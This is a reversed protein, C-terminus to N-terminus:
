GKLFSYLCIFLEHLQEKPKYLNKRQLSAEQNFCSFGYKKNHILQFDNFFLLILILFIRKIIFLDRWDNWTINIIQIIDYVMSGISIGIWVGRVDFQKWHVLYYAILNGVFIYCFIFTLFAYKARGVARVLGSLVAQLGDVLIMVCVYPLTNELYFQIETDDSIMTSILKRNLLIIIILTLQFVSVITICVFSLHQAENVNKRGMENGVFTAAAIAIGLSFQYAIFSVNILIIFTTFQTTSLYSAQLAYTQFCLMEIWVISGIPFATMLFTFCKLIIEKIQFYVLTIKSCETYIMFSWLIMISCLEAITQAYIVGFIDFDLRVILLYQFFVNIICGACQTYLKTQIYIANLWIAFLMYKTYIWANYIIQTDEIIIQFFILSYIHLLIMPLMIFTSLFLARYYLHGCLDYEKAGFAQSVLTELGFSIGVQIGQSLSKIFINGLGISAILNAKNINALILYVISSPLIEILFSLGTQISAISITLFRSGKNRDQFTIELQKQIVDEQDIIEEYQSNM